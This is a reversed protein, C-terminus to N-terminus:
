ATSGLPDRKLTGRPDRKMNGNGGAKAKSACVRSTLEPDRGIAHLQEAVTSEITAAPARTDLCAAIGENHAKSCIYFRYRKAGRTTFTHLFPSGCRGCRVMGRLLAGTKNRVHSDGQTANSRLREQVAAFVSAEIIPDHQGQVAGDRVRMQGAYIENTLLGHLTGKSFSRGAISRGGQTLFEKNTWGRTKLEALVARLSGTDLYIRFIQRVQAAEPENVVLRKAVVDYGLIPRGGTWQGRRRTAQM